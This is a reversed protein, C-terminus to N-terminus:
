IESEPGLITASTELFRTKFSNWLRQDEANNVRNTTNPRPYYHDNKYFARWAQDVGATDMTMDRCCDFDLIWLTHEGLHMSSITSTSMNSAETSDASILRPPALVFEVDNADIQAKWHMIALMDAMATAYYDVNLNLEEMQDIHM